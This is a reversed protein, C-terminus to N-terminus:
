TSECAVAITRQLQNFHALDHGAIKDLMRRVDESGQEGHVGRARWDPKGLSRLLTVNAERLGAFAALLRQPMPRALRSWGKEDYGPYSPLDQTLVLRWRFGYVIDVDFLHGVLQLASWEGTAMPTSWAAGDLDQCLRQVEYPTQEYVTLPDRDALTDLLARVYEAPQLTADPIVIPEIM